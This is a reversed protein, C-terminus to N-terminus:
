AIPTRSPLPQLLVGNVVSFIAYQRWHGSGAAIAVATFRPSKLLMRLALRLDQMFTNM